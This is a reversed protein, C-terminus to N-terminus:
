IAFFVDCERVAALIRVCARACALGLPANSPKGRCANGWSACPPAMHVCWVRGSRILACVADVVRLDTLDYCLGDRLEFGPWWFMGCESAAATFRACGAFLELFGSPGGRSGGPVARGARLRRARRVRRPEPPTPVPLPSGSTTSTATPPSPSSQAPVGTALDFSATSEFSIQPQPPVALAFQQAM